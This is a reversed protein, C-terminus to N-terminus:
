ASAMRKWDTGTSLSRREDHTLAELALSRLTCPWVYRGSQAGSSCLACRGTGDDVHAALLRDALGPEASILLALANM